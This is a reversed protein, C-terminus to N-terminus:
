SNVIATIKVCKAPHTCVIAQAGYLRLEYANADPVHLFLEGSRGPTEFSFEQSGIRKFRKFPVVFGEGEKVFPHPIVNLKGNPGMLQIKEFGGIGTDEKQGGNQRRLDTMTGSLNTFTKPSVLVSAEEMLGGKSVGLSVANLIKAVTLAASGASFSSGSWLSYAAADIGFLSGSNTIIKDIGIPEVSKAGKWHIYCDGAALATDLASIGTSTGTFVITRNAHNMSTIVFDANAGSSVLSDDSVKYFNVVGNETGSWIGPAWTAALMTVTTTTSSANVSSDATGLGTASRGYLFAMELRRSGTEMLNEVLLESANKFSEKSKVAKAAAEYDMQGRIIIQNADVTCEKLQAAIAANLTTVGSGAALYTVGAENSLIVPFNYSKGIKDASQFKVEQQIISVEPVANVPGEGYVVKFLGDLTSTTNQQAM